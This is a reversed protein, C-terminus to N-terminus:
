AAILARAPLLKEPRFRVTFSALGLSSLGLSSLGFRENEPERRYDIEVFVCFPVARIGDRASKLQPIGARGTGSAGTDFLASQLLM